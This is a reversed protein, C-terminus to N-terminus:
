LLVIGFIVYGTTEKTVAPANKAAANITMRIPGLGFVKFQENTNNKPLIYTSNYEKQINIKGLIGGAITVNWHPYNAYADGQNAVNVNIGRGGTINIGLTTQKGLYNVYCAAYGVQCIGYEIYMYGNDGWGESWSNKLIWVGHAGLSDNWGVLGVCHNIQAPSNDNFVGGTYGGFGDNVAIAVSIPGYDMIAQKMSNVSPIGSGSGIFKWSAITYPHAYPCSCPLNFAAYPFDQELVAGYGGCPDTRSGKFYNHAFWGGQCGWGEKNCSVLWQESLDVETHDKILINCELPVTSGFAWCSGCSGQDKVSSCGGLQRWDFATPLDRTPTCPDFSADVWWNDPVVLGCLQNLPRDTGPNQGVTFTWGEQRGQEQLAAIDASTLPGRGTIPSTIQNQPQDCDCASMGIPMVSLILGIALLLVIKKM